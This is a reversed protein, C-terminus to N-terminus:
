GRGAARRLRDNIALGLGDDSSKIAIINSTNSSELDRLCRYLRTAAMLDSNEPSLIFEKGFNKADIWPADKKFVRLLTSKSFDLHAIDMLDNQTEIFFTPIKPSYHKAAQGPSLNEESKKASYIKIGEGLFRKISELSLAGPRLLQLENDNLVQVITSEMGLESRGGEVVAELGFPGLEEIVDQATVTSVQTYRNASPAVLPSNLRHLITRFHPHKPARVAVWPSANTCLDPVRSNKKLLLTLPGPWFKEALKQAILPPNDLYRMAQEWDLVHVILPNFYPRAKLKYVKAIAKENNLPAALGYVTETPLAVPEDMKFCKIVRDIQEPHELDLLLTM